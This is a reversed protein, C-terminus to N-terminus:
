SCHVWTDIFLGKEDQELGKMFGLEYRTFRQQKAIFKPENVRNTRNVRGM